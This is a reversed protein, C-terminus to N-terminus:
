DGAKLISQWKIYTHFIGARRREDDGMLTSEDEQLDDEYCNEYGSFKIPDMVQIERKYKDNGRM